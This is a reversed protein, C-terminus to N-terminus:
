DYEFDEYSGQTIGCTKPAANNILYDVRGCDAIVRAAFRELTAQDALDGVFCDNELLDIVYVSAGAARFRECICKGIGRAGGTM